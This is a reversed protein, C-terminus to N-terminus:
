AVSFVPFLRCRYAGAAGLAGFHRTSCIKDQDLRASAANRLIRTLFQWDYAGVSKV